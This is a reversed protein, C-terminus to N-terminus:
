GSISAWQGNGMAQFYLKKLKRLGELGVFTRIPRRDVLARLHKNSDRIPVYLLPQTRLLPSPVQYIVSLNYVSDPSGTLVGENYTSTWGEGGSLAVVSYELFALPSIKPGDEPLPTAAPRILPGRGRKGCLESM